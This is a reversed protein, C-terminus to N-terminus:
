AATVTATANVTTKSTVKATIVTAGTAVWTMIGTHLGITAKGVVSSLWDLDANPALFSFGSGAVIAYAYMQKPSAGVLFSPIDGGQISLTDVPTYWYGSVTGATIAGTPELTIKFKELNPSSAGAAGGPALKAVWATFTLKDGTTFELDVTQLTKNTMITIMAALASAGTEVEVDFPGGDLLGNPINTKWAPSPNLVTSDLIGTSIEPYKPIATVLAQPVGGFKLITGITTFGAM